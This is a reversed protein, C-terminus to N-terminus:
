TKNHQTAPQSRKRKGAEAKTERDDRLETETELEFPKKKPMVSKECKNM